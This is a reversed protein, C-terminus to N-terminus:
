RLLGAREALVAVEVRNRAGLKAQAASLHTKVTAEGLYLDGAIEANSKGLGVAKVVDRERGTLTAMAHTAAQRQREDHDRTLYDLMQRTSRPSLVSDGAVVARVAGIIEEPAASKLLFGAAGAEISRLVADDVDWTTLAIVQPANPLARVARTAAIGDMRPMRLDMLVVDPAHAQVERVVEDGDAAQGVVDIDEASGLILRLGSCVLPDDDVLLVRHPRSM